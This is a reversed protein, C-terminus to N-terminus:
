RTRRHKGDGVSLVELRIRTLGQERFRLRKAVKPTVDLVRNDIFPGRDNLRLTVSRGNELNTVKVQCPLPLTKHAGALSHPRYTEGLATTGRHLGMWRREDYWSAVGEESHVLAAESSMPHYHQGRVKYPRMKYGKYGATCCANLLFLSVFLFLLCCIKKLMPEEQMCLIGLLSLFLALNGM